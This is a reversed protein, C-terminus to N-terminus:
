CLRAPLKACVEGVIQSAPVEPGVPGIPGIPGIPGRPGPLSLGRPGQPGTPGMPGRPGAPGLTPPGAPGRPGAVGAPGRAGTAGRAGAGGKPGVPGRPGTPGLVGIVGHAGRPGRAGASTRTGCLRNIRAVQRRSTDGGDLPVIRQGCVVARIESVSAGTLYNWIGLGVLAAMVAALGAILGVLTKRRVTIVEGWRRGDM